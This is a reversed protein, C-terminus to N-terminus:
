YMCLDTEAKMIDESNAEKSSQRERQKYWQDVGMVSFGMTVISGTPPATFTVSQATATTFFLARASLTATVSNITINLWVGGTAPAGGPTFTFVMSQLTYM